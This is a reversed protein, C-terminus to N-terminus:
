NNFLTMLMRTEVLFLSTKLLLEPINEVNHIYGASNQNNMKNANNASTDPVGLVDALRGMQTALAHYTATSNEIVPNFVTAMQHTMMNMMEHNSDDM